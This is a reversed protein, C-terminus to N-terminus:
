DWIMLKPLKFNIPQMLVSLSVCKEQHQEHHHHDRKNGKGSELVNKSSAPLETPIKTDWASFDINSIKNLLEKNFENVINMVTEKYPEIDAIFKSIIELLNIIPLTLIDNSAEEKAAKNQVHWIYTLMFVKGLLGRANADM